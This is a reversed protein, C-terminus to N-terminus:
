NSIPFNCQKPLETVIYRNHKGTDQMEANGTLIIQFKLKTLICAEPTQQQTNKSKCFKQTCSAM